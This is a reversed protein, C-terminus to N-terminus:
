SLGGLAREDSRLRVVVSFHREGEWLETAAKGALAAEITDQLDAVNVGFRAANVRDIDIRYQPLRGDRDVFSRTVGPVTAIRSRIQRAIQKITDFDDGQIKIVIQGDIQSISELVNDRIPQSFSPELGPLKGISAEMERILTAKTKGKPWEAEPKMEVFFEASNFIKPDTGDDPRGVKSIVSNVEPVRKLAERIQRAATQAADPSVSPALTVNVWISGENLEPLFE